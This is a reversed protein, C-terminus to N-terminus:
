AAYAVRIKSVKYGYGEALEFLRRLEVVAESGEGLLGALADLDRGALATLIGDVTSPPLGLAGLEEEVKERRTYTANPPRAAYM